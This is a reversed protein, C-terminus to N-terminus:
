NSDKSRLAGYMRGSINVVELSFPCLNLDNKFDTTLTQVSSKSAAGVVVMWHRFYHLKMDFIMLYFFPMNLWRLTSSQFPPREATRKCVCVIQDLGLGEM